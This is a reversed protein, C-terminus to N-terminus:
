RNDLVNHTKLHGDRSQKTTFTRKCILCEFPKINTHKRIHVRLNYKTKFGKGCSACKWKAEDSHVLLHVKLREKRNFRKNCKPCKFNKYNDHSDLHYKFKSGRVNLGCIHCLSTNNIHICLRHRKLEKISQFQINCISCTAKDVENKHFQKLHISKLKVPLFKGCMECFYVFNLDDTFPIEEVDSTDQREHFCIHNKHQSRRLKQKCYCCYALLSCNTCTINKGHSQAEEFFNVCLNCFFFMRPLIRECHDIMEDESNFTKECIKCMHQNTALKKNLLDKLHLIVGNEYEQNSDMPTEFPDNLKKGVPEHFCPHYRLNKSRILQKCHVCRKGSLNCSHNQDFFDNCPPCFYTIKVDINAIHTQLQGLSTFKKRCGKCM